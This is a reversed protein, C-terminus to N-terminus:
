QQLNAKFKFNIFLNIFNWNPYHMLIYESILNFQKVGM